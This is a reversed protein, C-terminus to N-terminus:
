DFGDLWTCNQLLFSVFFVNVTGGAITLGLAVDRWVRRGHVALLRKREKPLSSGDPHLLTWSMEDDSYILDWKVAIKGSHIEGLGLLLPHLTEFKVHILCSIITLRWGSGDWIVPPVGIKLSLNLTSLKFDM